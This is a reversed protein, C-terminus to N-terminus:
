AALALLRARAIERGGERVRGRLCARARSIVVM